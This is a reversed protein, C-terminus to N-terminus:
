QGGNVFKATYEYPITETEQITLGNKYAIFGVNGTYTSVIPTAKKYVFTIPNQTLWQKLEDASAFTDRILVEGADTIGICPEDNVWISADSNGYKSNTVLNNSISSVGLSYRYLKTNTGDQSPVEELLYKGDIINQESTQRMVQKTEFDIYDFAGLETSIPNVSEIYPEYEKTTLDTRYIALRFVVDETGNKNSFFFSITSAEEIDVQYTDNDFYHEVGQIYIRGYFNSPKQNAYYKQFLYKGAPLVFNKLNFNGNHSKPLTLVDNVISGNYLTGKKINLLNRGVSKISCKSNVLTNNYPEFPPVEEYTYEGDLVMPTFIFIKNQDTDNLQHYLKFSSYTNADLVLVNHPEVGFWSTGGEKNTAEVNFRKDNPNVITMHTGKVYFADQSFFNTITGSFTKTIITIVGTETSSELSYRADTFTDNPVKFLNPSLTSTRGQIKKFHANSDIINAGGCTLEIEKDSTYEITNKDANIQAELLDLRDSNYDVGSKNAKIEATAFDMVEQKTLNAIEQRETKSLGVKLIKEAM